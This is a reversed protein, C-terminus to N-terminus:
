NSSLSEYTVTQLGFGPETKSLQVYGQENSAQQHCRGGEGEKGGRGVGVVTLGDMRGDKPCDMVGRFIFAVWGDM